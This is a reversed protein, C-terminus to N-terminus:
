FLLGELAKPAKLECKSLSPSVLLSGQSKPLVGRDKMACLGAIGV